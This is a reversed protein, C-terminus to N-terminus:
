ETVAPEAARPPWPPLGFVWLQCDIGADALIRMESPSLLNGTYGVHVDVDIHIQMEWGQARLDALAAAHREIVDVM